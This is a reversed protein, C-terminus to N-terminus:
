RFAEAPLADRLIVALAADYDAPRIVRVDVGPAQLALQWEMQAPTVPGIRSKLEWALIRGPKAAIIDPFGEDGQTIGDSRRIHMWTWDGWELAESIGILLEAETMEHAQDTLM